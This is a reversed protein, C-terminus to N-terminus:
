TFGLDEILRSTPAVKDPPISVTDAICSRVRPWVGVPAEKGQAVISSEVWRTVDSATAGILTGKENRPVDLKEIDLDLRSLGFEEEIRFCCDLFDIGM